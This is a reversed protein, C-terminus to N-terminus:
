VNERPVGSSFATGNFWLHKANPTNTIIYAM